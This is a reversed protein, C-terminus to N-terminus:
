SGTVPLSTLADVDLARWEGHAWDLSVFGAGSLVGVNHGALHHTQNPLQSGSHEVMQGHTSLDDHSHHTYSARTLVTCLKVDSRRVQHWSALSYVYACAYM